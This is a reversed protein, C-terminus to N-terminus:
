EIDVYVQDNFEYTTTDDTISFQALMEEKSQYEGVGCSSLDFMTYTDNFEYYVRIAKDAVGMFVLVRASPNGLAILLSCLLINRDMSDGATFTLTDDPNLWFQLPLTIQEVNKEVFNFAAISAEKFNQEYFYGEISNQIEESKKAVLPSSPTVLRPLEAVAIEEKEEIYDKYRSVILLYIQNLRALRENELELEEISGSGANDM